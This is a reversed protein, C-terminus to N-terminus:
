SFILDTLQGGRRINTMLSVLTYGLTSSLAILFARALITLLDTHFYIGIEFIYIIWFNIFTYIANSTRIQTILMGSSLLAAILVSLLTIPLLFSEFSVDTRGQFIFMTKMMGIVIAACLVGFDIQLLSITMYSRMGVRENGKEDHRVWKTLKMSIGEFLQSIERPINKRFFRIAILWGIFHYFLISLAFTSFFVFGFDDYLSFWVRWKVVRYFFPACTYAYYLVM